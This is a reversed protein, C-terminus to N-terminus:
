KKTRELAMACIKECLEGYGIGVAAAARPFLSNETLGPLANTELYYIAGDGTMIFDSRSFDRMGLAKHALLALRSLENREKETVNAPCVDDTMGFQYKSEFDYFGGHTIIEVPPLAADNLVSVSFERGTIKEEVLVRDGHCFAEEIATKLEDASEAFHVGVSSGCTCPKIVAPFPVDGANDGKKLLKGRPVTVGAERCILKSIYKDMASHCSEMSSGTYTIGYEDLTAQAHGDEGMGGHLALFCVDADLCLEIVGDGVLRGSKTETGPAPRAPIASECKIDCGFRACKQASVPSSIDCLAVSHGLRSLAEAALAGSRMSVDHEPSIGGALVLIKM